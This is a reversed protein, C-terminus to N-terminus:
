NCITNVNTITSSNILRHYRVYVIDVVHRKQFHNHSINDLYVRGRGSEKEGKREREGERGGRM